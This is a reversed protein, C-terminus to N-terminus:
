GLGPCSKTLGTPGDGSCAGCEGSLCPCSPSAGCGAPLPMCSYPPKNPQQLDPAYLCYESALQCSLPGCVFQGPCVGMKAVDAGALAAFCANAYSKHDCACVPADPTGSCDLPEPKCVGTQDGGGCSGDAWVCYTHPGCPTGALGGCVTAGGTGGTVSKSGGTGTAAGGTGTAAGGAGTVSGAAEPVITSGCGALCLIATGLTVFAACHMRM